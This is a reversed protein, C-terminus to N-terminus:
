KRKWAGTDDRVYEGAPARELLKAGALRAVADVSAGNRAAIEQYASRRKTNVEEVLAQVPAPADARVLGLYGDVQEGVLGSQKASDIEEAQAALAPACLLATALLISLARRLPRAGGTM